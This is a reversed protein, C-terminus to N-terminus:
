QLDFTTGELKLLLRSSSSVIVFNFLSTVPQLLPTTYSCVCFLLSGPLLLRELLATSVTPPQTSAIKPASQASPKTNRVSSHDPHVFSLPHPSAKHFHFGIDSTSTQDPLEKFAQIFLQYSNSPKTTPFTFSSPASSVEQRRACGFLV